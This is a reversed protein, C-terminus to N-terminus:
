QKIAPWVYELTMIRDGVIWDMTYYIWVVDMIGWLLGGDERQFSTITAEHAYRPTAPNQEWRYTKPVMRIFELLAWVPIDDPKQFEANSILNV